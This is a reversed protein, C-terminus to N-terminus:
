QRFIFNAVQHNIWSALSSIWIGLYADQHNTFLIDDEIISFFVAGWHRLCIYLHAKTQSCCIQELSVSAAFGQFNLLLRQLEQIRALQLHFLLHLLLQLCIQFLPRPQQTQLAAAESRSNESATTSVALALLELSPVSGHCRWKSFFFNFFCICSQTQISSQFTNAAAQQSYFWCNACRRNSLFVWCLFGRSDILLVDEPLCFVASRTLASPPNHRFAPSIVWIVDNIKKATDVTFERIRKASHTTYPQSSIWTLLSFFPEDSIDFVVELLSM